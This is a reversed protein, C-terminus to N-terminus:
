VSGMPEQLQFNTAQIEQEAKSLDKTSSRTFAWAFFEVAFFISLLFLGIVLFLRDFQGTTTM